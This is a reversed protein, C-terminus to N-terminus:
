IPSLDALELRKLSPRFGPRPGSCRGQPPFICRMSIRAVKPADLNRGAMCLGMNEQWSEFRGDTPCFAALRQGCGAGCVGPPQHRRWGAAALVLGARELVFPWKSDNATAGPSCCWGCLDGLFALGDGARHQQVSSADGLGGLGDRVVLVDAALRYPGM